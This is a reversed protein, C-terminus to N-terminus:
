RASNDTCAKTLWGHIVAYTYYMHTSKGEAMHLHSITDLLTLTLLAILTSM